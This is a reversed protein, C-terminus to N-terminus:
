DPFNALEDKAINGGSLICVVNKGELKPIKNNVIAAFAAAGSPEVLLGSRYLTSVAVKIEVDSVLAIAEVYRQCLEYPLRGACPPALGSAISKSDMGVPKKEIFSRYMTCAGEPEVGYIKTKAYGSLKIAAAVGALLGGGGCCVVVVDPESNVELLEMGLSAHGAILDLDDYPHMFTMNDEQVYRNVANMLSSTPVREVEVGFSQILTSRSKPATKPMVVKGRSGYHKLAYAFSKGYNGASMTVFPGGKPKRAFQNAVGRIKFSGTRQMNELKIHINCNINLPLTTHCWPIMPTNIVGLPSTRVTERAERLLDLTVADASVEDM